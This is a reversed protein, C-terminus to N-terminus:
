PQERFVHAEPFSAQYELMGRFGRLLARVPRSRHYGFMHRSVPEGGMRTKGVEATQGLDVHRAGDDIAERLVCALINGHLRLRQQHEYDMGVMFFRLSGAASHVIHWGLLHGRLRHTTLTFQGPLAAFLDADLRELRAASRQLVALYQQYMQEDFRSCPGRESRVQSWPQQLKRLRRRYPSRLAALYAEWSDFSRQLEISPLTHGWAASPLDLRQELNLGLVLGQQQPLLSALLAQQDIASGLLGPSSQSCPVGVVQMRLPSPLGSFTLLDLRTSYLVAGAVLRGDRWLEHYRQQCPNHRELLRLFDRRQFPSTALEDWGSGLQEARELRRPNSHLPARPQEPQARPRGRGSSARPSLPGEFVCYRRHPEPRKGQARELYRLTLALSRQNEEFIFGGETQPYGAREVEEIMRLILALDVRRSRCDPHVAIETLRATRIPDQLRYRLLHRLGLEGDRSTLENFDPYWLLFGVPRGNEEAVLFHEDRLLHRFPWFLEYDEAATRDAWFPHKQFCANNLDTYIDVDRAFNDRDMCRVRLDGASFRPALRRRLEFFHRSEFRYSLMSRAPLQNFYDLYYPPTYPLGFVPAQHFCSALFGCGYNLHGNLGVVLQPVGPHMARAKLRIADLVGSLDPLAEFFAVQVYDPLKRDHILAFRGVTRRGQRMLFPAVSAHDHFATPGEVLMRMVEDETSRHLPLDRYVRAGARYFTKLQRGEARQLSIM